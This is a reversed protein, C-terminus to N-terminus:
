EPLPGPVGDAGEPTLVTAPLPPMEGSKVQAKTREREVEIMIVQQEPTLGFDHPSRQQNAANNIM